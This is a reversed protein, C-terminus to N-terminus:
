GEIKHESRKRDHAMAILTTRTEIYSRVDIESTLRGLWISELEEIDPDAKFIFSMVKNRPNWSTRILERGMEILFASFDLGSTIYLGEKFNTM